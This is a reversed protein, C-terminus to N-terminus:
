PKAKGTALDFETMLGVYGDLRMETLAMEPQSQNVVFFDFDELCSYDHAIIQSNSRICFKDQVNEGKYLAKTDTVRVETRNIQVEKNRSL